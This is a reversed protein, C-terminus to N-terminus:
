EVPEAPEAPTTAVHVSAYATCDYTGDETVELTGTSPNPVNVEASAYATVDYTDNETISLTGTSPNPVNVTVSSFGDLDDAAATYTDNVTINKTGLAAGDPLYDSLVKIAAAIDGKAPKDSGAIADVLADLAAAVDDGKRTVTSGACKDAAAYIESAISM